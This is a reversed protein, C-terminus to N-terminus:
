LKDLTSIVKEALVLDTNTIMDLKIVNDDYDAKNRDSRLRELNYGIRKRLRDNSKKFKDRVYQHAKGGPPIQHGEKDRLHNRCKCFAAAYYARSIATRFRAEQHARKVPQGALELALGLYESWEFSM